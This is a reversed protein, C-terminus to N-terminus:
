SINPSPHAGTAALPSHSGFAGGKPCLGFNHVLGKLIDPYIVAPYFIFHIVVLNKGRRKIM